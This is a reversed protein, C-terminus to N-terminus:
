SFSADHHAHTTPQPLPCHCDLRHACGVPSAPAGCQWRHRERWAWFLAARLPARHQNNFCWHASSSATCQVALVHLTSAVCAVLTFCVCASSVWRSLSALDTTLEAPLTAPTAAEDVAAKAPEVAEALAAPVDAAAAVAGSLGAAAGAGAAAAPSSGVAPLPKSGSGDTASQQKQRKQQTKGKKGHKGHEAPPLPQEEEDSSESSSYRM